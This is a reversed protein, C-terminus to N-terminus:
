FIQYVDMYIKLPKITGLKCLSNCAFITDFTLNSLVLHRNNFKNPCKLYINLFHM